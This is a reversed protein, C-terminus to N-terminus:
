PPQHRGIPAMCGGSLRIFATPAILEAKGTLRLRKAELGMNDRETLRM